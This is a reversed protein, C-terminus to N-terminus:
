VVAETDRPWVWRRTRWDPMEDHLPGPGFSEELDARGHPVRRYQHGLYCPGFGVDIRYLAIGFVGIHHECVATIFLNGTVQVTQSPGPSYRPPWRMM